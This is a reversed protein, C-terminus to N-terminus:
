QEADYAEKMRMLDLAGTRCGYTWLANHAGVIGAFIGFAIVRKGADDTLVEYDILRIKKKLIEQLLPRNYEQEKITHSFFFYTKGAILSEIPVEKVGLLIDCDSLDDTLPIGLSKYEEDKFCRIASRQVVLDAGERILHACQSPTLVVRSDSPIKEEKIIGIKM